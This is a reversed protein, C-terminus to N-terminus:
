ATTPSCTPPGLSPRRETTGPASTVGRASLADALRHAESLRGRGVLGNLRAFNGLPHFRLGQGPFSRYLVGRPDFVDVGSGPMSHARFWRRNLGLESFLVLARPRNLRRAQVATDHLVAGLNLANTWSLRRLAIRTRRLELRYGRAEARTLKDSQVARTLGKTIARADSRWSAAAPGALVLAVVIACTTLLSRRGVV